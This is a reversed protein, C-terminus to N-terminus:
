YSNKSSRMPYTALETEWQEAAAALDQATMPFLLYYGYIESPGQWPPHAGISLHLRLVSAPGNHNAISFAIVPEVFTLIGEEPWDRADSAPVPVPVARRAQRLWPAVRTAELATVAPDEFTWSRGDGLYVDGRIVLFDDWRDMPQDRFEYGVPRLWVRDGSTNVFEM